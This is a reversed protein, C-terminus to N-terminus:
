VTDLVWYWRHGDLDYVAAREGVVYLLEMAEEVM